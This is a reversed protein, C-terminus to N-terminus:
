ENEYSGSMMIMTSMGDDGLLTFGIRNEWFLESKVGGRQM